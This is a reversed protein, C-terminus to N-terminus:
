GLILSNPSEFCEGTAQGLAKILISEGVGLELGSHPPAVRNTCLYVTPLLDQPTTALIARFANVLMHIITLRKSTEAIAEFTNALFSYPVPQGAKWTALADLDFAAHKAAAEIAGVGVGDAQLSAVLSLVEM